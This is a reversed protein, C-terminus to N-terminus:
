TFLDNIACLTRHLIKFREGVKEIEVMWKKLPAYVLLYFEQRITKKKKDKKEMGSSVLSLNVVTDPKM